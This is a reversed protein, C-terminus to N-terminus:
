TTSLSEDVPVVVGAEYKSMPNGGTWLGLTTTRSRSEMKPRVRGGTRGPVVDQRESVPVTCSKGVGM